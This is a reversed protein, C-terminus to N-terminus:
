KESTKEKGAKRLEKLRARIQELQEELIGAQEELMAREEEQGPPHQSSPTAGYPYPIPAM